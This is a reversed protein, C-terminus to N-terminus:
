MVAMGDVVVELEVAADGTIFRTPYTSPTRTFLVFLDAVGYNIAFAISRGRIDISM